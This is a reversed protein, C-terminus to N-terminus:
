FSCYFFCNKTQTLYEENDGEYIVVSTCPAFREFDLDKMKIEILAGPRIGTSAFFHIIASWRLNAVSLTKKIDQNTYPEQGTQKEFKPYWKRIKKLNLVIDNQVFFHEIPGVYTNFSRARFSGKEHRKKLSIVTKLM